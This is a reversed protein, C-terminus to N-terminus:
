QEAQRGCRRSALVIVETDPMATAQQQFATCAQQAGPGRFGFEIHGEGPRKGISPLSSVKVGPHQAAIAEMLAIFDGESPVGAVRLRYEVAGADGRLKPYRHVFLWEIMPWAMEPFGPVFHCDGISFGAVQNVPNPILEAGAPFEAMRIRQPRAREGYRAEILATAEPHQELPRGFALGAAQRTRDDPTGGIGGCSILVANQALAARIAAAIDAEEDGVMSARALELGLDGLREIVAALHRDQRKGSLLEDGVILLEIRQMLAGRRRPAM